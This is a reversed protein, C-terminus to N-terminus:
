FISIGQPFPTRMSSRLSIILVHGCYTQEVHHVCAGINLQLKNTTQFNYIAAIYIIINICM